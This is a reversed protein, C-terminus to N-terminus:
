GALAELLSGNGTDTESLLRAAEAGDRIAPANAAAQQAAQQQARQARIQAVEDTSRILRAPAGAREAYEDIMEDVNIKDVAEPFVGALNGVFGATREIQGIGVMRQMQTLISVFNIKLDTGALAEPPPPLLGKRQMIGFARDIAVELKETNVREIVPGLQTLKEENRSAIEEMNRPQIGQMNTIAMFLDAYFLRDIAEKCRGIEESIAPLIQYAPVYVPQVSGADVSSSTIINGPQGTVRMGAPSVLEPKVIKDITENRRKTQMQLERLSPLAEMGPSYGYTDSGTTDWRPAWFPKEDFGGERLVNHCNSDDEDWWVSAWPKNRADIRSGDREVRPEIAHFVNVTEDYQASDYMKMVRPAVAKGFTDVAQRVSMPVRRYLTDATLSSSTAIWYEGATLAHCVAGVEDHEVMVCAETGFLGLELYGTKSAGYFNTSAFFSYLRKEVDDLWGKVDPQDILADDYTALQFWPRSQSSLGSTMGNSLTRAALLGHEDFLNANRARRLNKDKDSALFRSRAPQALRATERWDTEYDKRISKLGELRKSCRERLTKM